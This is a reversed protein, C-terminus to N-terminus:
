LFKANPYNEIIFMKLDEVLEKKILTVIAGGFGAGTLKSGLSGFTNCLEVLLDLESTSVKYLDRLSNHSQTMLSGFKKLDNEVLAIKGLKSRQNEYVVHKAINLEENTLIKKHHDDLEDLICLNEINLKSSIKKCYERKQNLSGDTLIRQKGSDIIFFIYDGSLKILDYNNSKTDLFLAQNQSGYISAFQDMVGGAVGVFDREVSHALEVLESNKIEKNYLSCLAKLTSVTVAASSSVGIGIPLNSKVEICLQKINLNYKEARKKAIQNLEKSPDIGLISTVKTNNYHKLNYKKGFLYLSGKIFDTWDNMKKNSVSTLIEQDFNESKIKIGDITTDKKLYVNVSKNIQLPIVCGQNYDLHEGMLNVRGFAEGDSFNNM